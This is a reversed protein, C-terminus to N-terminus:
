VGLIERTRAVDREMADLLDQVGNFKEMGRLREVFEVTVARDYLDAERDLVFAEVSRREDGFTPNTGVSIATPYRVGPVMDGTPPEDDITFWGCYVGDAPIAVNDPFYLNATPYGLERGGRGAGRAVHSHVSFPRGLVHAAAAVDGEKLYQRTVSSSLVTGDEALLEVVDVDFGLQQGLERLTDTTGAAKHGFTFNEGVAVAKAHLADHLVVRAFEAPSMAAFERDFTLALIHDVGLAEARDARDAFTSIMPPVKDPRVVSLPHPEFTVMVVPLDLAQAREIATTILRQHGRHIGDFMGITVVSATLEPANDQIDQM